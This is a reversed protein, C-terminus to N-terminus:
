NNFFFLEDAEYHFLWLPLTTFDSFLKNLAQKQFGLCLARAESSNISNARMSIAQTVFKGLVHGELCAQQHFDSNADSLHLTSVFPSLKGARSNSTAQPQTTLTGTWRGM